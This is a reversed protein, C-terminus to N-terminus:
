KSQIQMRAKDDWTQAISFLDQLDSFTKQVVQCQKAVSSLATNNSNLSAATPPAALCLDEHACEDILGRMIKLTFTVPETVAQNVAQLWKAQRYLLRLQEVLRPPFEIDGRSAYDVAARLEPWHPTDVNWDRVIRGIRHEYELAEGILSLFMDTEDLECSLKSVNEALHKLQELTPRAAAAAAVAATQKTEIKVSKLSSKYLLLFKQCMESCEAALQCERELRNLLSDEYDMSHFSSPSSHNPEFPIDFRPYKNSRAQELLKQLQSLRPKPSTEQIIQVDQDQDGVEIDCDSTINLCKRVDSTWRAYEHTHKQLRAYLETLEELTYRYLVTFQHHNHHHHNSNNNSNNNQAAKIQRKNPSKASKNNNLTTTTANTATPTEKVCLHELHNLCVMVEARCSCKVASVFCTTKCFDCTREDDSLLEFALKNGHKIGSELLHLRYAKEFDILRKLDRQVVVATNLDLLDTRTAVKCVLEDHSFM